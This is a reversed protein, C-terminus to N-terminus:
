GTTFKNAFRERNFNLYYRGEAADDSGSPQTRDDDKEDKSQGAGVGNRGSKEQKSSEEGDHFKGRQQQHDSGDSREGAYYPRWGNRLVTRLDDWLSRAGARLTHADYDVHDDATSQQQAAINTVCGAVLFAALSTVRLNVTFRM